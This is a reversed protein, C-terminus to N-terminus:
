LVLIDSSLGRRVPLGRFRVDRIVFLATRVPGALAVALWELRRCRARREIRSAERGAERRPSGSRIM